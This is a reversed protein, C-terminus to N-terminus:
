KETDNPVTVNTTNFLPLVSLNLGQNARKRAVDLAIVRSEDPVDNADPPNACLAVQQLTKTAWGLHRAMDSWNMGHRHHFANMSAQIVEPTDAEFEVVDRKLWGRVALERCARTYQSASIIGIDHARRVMAPTSVRWRVKMRAVADLDVSMGRPFERFFGTRPMLLASAFRHAQRELDETYEAADDHLVLHGCEHAVDFVNRSASNKSQNVVIIPHNLRRSFADVEQELDTTAVIAGALEVARIINNIPTDVGLGWTMRCREAAREIDEDTTARTRPFADPRPKLKTEFFTALEDCLVAHSTMRHRTEAKASKSCRFHGDHGAYDFKLPQSFWSAEFGLVDALASLTQESPHRVGSEIQSIYPKGNGIASALEGQTMGAFARALQVRRGNFRALDTM